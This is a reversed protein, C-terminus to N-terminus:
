TKVSLMSSKRERVCCVWVDLRVVDECEVDLEEVLQLAGGDVGHQGQHRVAHQHAQPFGVRPEPPPDAALELWSLSM